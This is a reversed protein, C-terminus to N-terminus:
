ERHKMQKKNEYMRVDAMQYIQEPKANEVETSLAFGQAVSLRYQLAERENLLNIQEYFAEIYGQIHEKSENEVIVAFEDGGIRFCNETCIAFTKEIQSAVKKIYEDGMPHGLTDNIVKLNNVDFIIIGYLVNQSELKQLYEQFATRNGLGTLGDQYALQRILESKAGRQIAKITQELGAVGYCVVFILLGIRVFLACDAGVIHYFRYLDVLATVCLAVLGFIRCSHFVREEKTRNQILFKVIKYIIYIFTCVIVIHSVTLTQKLDKMDLINLPVCVMFQIISIVFIASPIKSSLKNESGGFAEEVYLLIPLPILALSLCSIIHMTKADGSFMQLLHLEAMCWLAITIASLGLYLLEHNRKNIINNPIDALVFVVGVFLLLVCTVFAVLNTSILSMVMGPGSGIYIDTICCRANDYPCMFRIELEKGSMDQEFVYYNRYHGSSNIYFVSEAYYPEYVPQGDVLLQTYLHRTFFYLTDKGDLDDPLQCYISVYEGKDAGELLHLNDLDAAEGNTDVWSDKISIYEQELRATQSQGKYAFACILVMIIGIFLVFAYSILYVKKNKQM